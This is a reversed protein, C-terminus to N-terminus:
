VSSRPVTRVYTFREYVERAQPVERKKGTGVYCVLIQHGHKERRRSADFSPATLSTSSLLLLLLVILFSSSSFLYSLIDIINLPLRYDELSRRSQQIM